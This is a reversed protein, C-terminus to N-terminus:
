SERGFEALSQLWNRGRIMLYSDKSFCQGRIEETLLNIIASNCILKTNGYRRHAKDNVFFCFGNTIVQVGFTDFERLTVGFIEVAQRSEQAFM